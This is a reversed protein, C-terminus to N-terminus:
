LRRFFGNVIVRSKCVFAQLSKLPTRPDEFLTFVVRRPLKLFGARRRMDALLSQARPAKELDQDTAKESIIAGFLTIVSTSKFCTVCQQFVRVACYKLM